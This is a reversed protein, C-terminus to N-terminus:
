VQLLQNMINNYNVLRYSSLHTYSLTPSFASILAFRSRKETASRGFSHYAHEHLLSCNIRSRSHIHFYKPSADEGKM